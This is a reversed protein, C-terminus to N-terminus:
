TAIYGGDVNVIAGTMFSSKVSALFVAVNAIEDPEGIRGIPHKVILENLEQDSYKSSMSTLTDGPCIANVRINKLGYEVALAKTLGVVAHKSSVYAASIDFGVLGATSAINIINGIGNKLMLQLVQQTVLFMADLNVSFIKKWDQFNFNETSGFKLIGANNVLIDIASYQTKIQSFLDKIASENSLDIEFCHLKDKFAHMENQIQEIFEADKEFVIVKAQELLFAKVIAKGIGSGGGTVLVIKGDLGTTNFPM